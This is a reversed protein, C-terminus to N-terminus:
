IFAMKNNAYDIKELNIEQNFIIIKEKLCFIVIKNDGAIFYTGDTLLDNMSDNFVVEKAHEMNKFNGSVIKEQDKNYVYFKIPDYDIIM